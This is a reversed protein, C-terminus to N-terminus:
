TYELYKGCYIEKLEEITEFDKPVILCTPKEFSYIGTKELMHAIFYSCVFKNEFTVPFGFWRPVIGIFDYKYDRDNNSITLLEQKLQEYQSETIELEYIKCETKNFKGFFEGEKEQISFGGNLINYLRKRGFSYTTKCDKTLSITVHSYKYRTFIKVFQSPITNTHMLLIYIKKM